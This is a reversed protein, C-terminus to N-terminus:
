PKRRAKTSSGNTTKEQHGLAIRKSCIGVIFRMGEMHRLEADTAHPGNVREISISRLYDMLSKGAATALVTACLVNLRAEEAAPRAIGDLGTTTPNPM